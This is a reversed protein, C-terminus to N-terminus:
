KASSVLKKITPSAEVERLEDIGQHPLGWGLFLGTARLLECSMSVYLALLDLLSSANSRMIVVHSGDDEFNHYNTSQQNDSEDKNDDRKNWLMEYQKSARHEFLVFYDDRTNALFHAHRM